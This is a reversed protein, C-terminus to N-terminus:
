VKVTIFKYIVYGIIILLFWTTRINQIFVIFMPLMVLFVIVLYGIKRFKLPNTKFQPIKNELLGMLLQGGDLVPIPLSNIIGLFISVEGLSGIYNCYKNAFTVTPFITMCNSLYNLPHHHLYSFMNTYGSFINFQWGQLGNIILICLMPLIFISMILGGVTFILRSSRSYTLYEEDDKEPKVYAGLLIWAIKYTTGKFYFKTITPGFGLSVESIKIGSIKAGLMHGLEHFLTAIIITIFIQIFSM